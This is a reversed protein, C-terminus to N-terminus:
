KGRWCAVGAASLWSPRKSWSEASRVRVSVNRSSPRCATAVMSRRYVSQGQLPWVSYGLASRLPSLRATGGQTVSVDLLFDQLTRSLSRTRYAATWGRSKCRLCRNSHAQEAREPDDTQKDAYGPRRRDRRSRRMRASGQAINNNGRRPTLVTSHIVTVKDGQARRFVVSTAAGIRLGRM